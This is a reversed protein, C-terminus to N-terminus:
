SFIADEAAIWTEWSAWFAMLSAFAQRGVRVTGLRRAREEEGGGPTSVGGGQNVFGFVLLMGRLNAEQVDEVRVAIGGLGGGGGVTGIEHLRVVQFPTLLKPRKQGFVAAEIELTHSGGERCYRRGRGGERGDMGEMRSEGDEWNWVWVCECLISVDVGEGCVAGDVDEALEWLAELEPFARAGAGGVDVVIAVAERGAGGEVAGHVEELM